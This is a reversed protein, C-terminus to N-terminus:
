ENKEQILKVSHKIIVNNCMVLISTLMQDNMSIKTVQPPRWHVANKLIWVKTISRGLSVRPKTMHDAKELPIKGLMIYISLSQKNYGRKFHLCWTCLPFNQQVSSLSTDHFFEPPFWLSSTQTGLPEWCFAAMHTGEWPCVCLWGMPNLSLILWQRKLGKLKPLTHKTTISVQYLMNNM